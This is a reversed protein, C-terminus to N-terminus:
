HHGWFYQNKQSENPVRNCLFFVSTGGPPHVDRQRAREEYRQMGEVRGRGCVARSEMCRGYSIRCVPNPVWRGPSNSYGKLGRERDAHIRRADCRFLTAAGRRRKRLEAGTQSVDGHLWVVPNGVSTFGQDGARLLSSGKQLRPPLSRRLGSSRRAGSRGPPGKLTHAEATVAFYGPISGHRGDWLGEVLNLLTWTFRGSCEKPECRIVKSYIVRYFRM